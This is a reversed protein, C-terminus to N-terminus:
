QVICSRAKKKEKKKAEVLDTIRIHRNVEDMRCNSEKVTYDQSVVKQIRDEGEHEKRFDTVFKIVDDDPYLITAIGLAGTPKELLISTHWRAYFLLFINCVLILSLIAVITWAIPTVV